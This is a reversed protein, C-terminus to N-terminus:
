TRVERPTSAERLRGAITRAVVRRTVPTGDCASLRLAAEPVADLFADSQLAVLAVTRERCRARLREIEEAPLPTPSPVSAISGRWVRALQTSARASWSATWWRSRWTSGPAACRRTTGLSCCCTADRM